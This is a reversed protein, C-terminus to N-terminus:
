RQAGSRWRICESTIEDISRLGMLTMNRELEGKLIEIARSVGAEGGAGLGYLYGKGVLVGKAGLALAKIIQTGRSFGSDVLVEVRDGVADLIEPLVELSPPAHDLQRGGHNSVVIGSAGIEAARLADKPSTIGKIVFPGGWEACLAAADDWTFSRDLQEAFWEAVSGFDAKTSEDVFGEFNPFSWAKSRLYDLSWAPSMALQSLIRLTPKPPISIENRLDRERNGATACDVTLLMAKYDYQKCLKVYESALSREKFVYVQFWKPGTSATAIDQLSFMASTSAGYIVNDRGAARAVALEGDNHFFRTAGTSSLVFPVSTPTGLITTSTDVTDVDRLVRQILSLQDFAPSNEGRTYEDDAGGDLYDFIFKPMRRRSLKRLDQINFARALAGQAGTSSGAM